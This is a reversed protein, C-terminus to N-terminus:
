PQERAKCAALASVLDAADEYRAAPAKELCRMIVTELGQPIAVKRRVSPKMPVHHVHALLMGVAGGRSAEFPSEGTLMFYLLAGMSYVDARADVERGLVAEPSIYAPTGVIADDSTLTAEHGGGRSFRVTGFDLVKVFDRERGITTLFVNSPKIDRHVIGSAHAESLAGAAQIAVHIARAPLLPGERRVLEALTEGQLLEMAYYWLGDETTGFDFIRVTNPHFLAATAHAEREFRSIGIDSYAERRLVKIAVDRKLAAHHALWVDGTAGSGIRHKLKYRGLSRAEFVQGRLSWVIHGGGTVLAATFFVFSLYIGFLALARVEHFQHAVAPDYLGAAVMIAPYVATPIGNMLVGRRWSEGGFIMRHVLVPCIGAGYPSEIGWFPVCMLAIAGACGTHMTLDLATRARLSVIPHRLCWLVFALVSCLILRTSAFFPVSGRHLSRVVVLDVAFFAIWTVIGVRTASRMRATEAAQEDRVLREDRPSRVSAGL